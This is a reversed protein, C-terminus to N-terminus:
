TVRGLVRESDQADPVGDGDSDLVPGDAGSAAHANSALLTKQVFRSALSAYDLSGLDLAAQSTFEQFTGDGHRTALETLTWRAVRRADEASPMGNYLSSLCAEDCLAVAAENFLLVTHLRVEGVQYTDKLTLLQDAADFLQFNQNRDTGSRYGPVDVTSGANCFTAPNDRWIGWPQDATAYVNAGLDADNSTCRPYPSGDTLLIVVYKTRPLQARGGAAVTRWIDTEIRLYADALAGQYDTGKGLHNHLDAIRAHLEGDSAPVFNPRTESFAPYANSIKSEFPVLAVSVNEQKAFRAMLSQLARVRGPTTVGQQRLETGIDECFGPSAQSGPGDSVCMSGSSDILFVVKVPFGTVDPPNTCVRGRLSLRDDLNKSEVAEPQLQAETCGSLALLTLLLPRM